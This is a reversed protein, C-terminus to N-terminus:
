PRPASLFWGAAEMEQRSFLTISLSDPLLEKMTARSNRKRVVDVQLKDRERQDAALLSLTKQTDARANQHVAHSTETISVTVEGTEPHVLVVSRYLTGDNPDPDPRSLLFNERSIQQAERKTGVILYWM